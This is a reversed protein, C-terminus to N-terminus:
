REASQHYRIKTKFDKVDGPEIVMLEQDHMAQRRGGDRATSPEVGLVNVSVNPDRWLLLYRWNASLPEVILEGVGRRSVSIPMLTGDAGYRGYYGVTEEEPYQSMTLARPLDGSDDNEDRWGLFPLSGSLQTGNSILPQGINIHHRFMIHTPSTGLNVIHDHITLVPQMVDFELVRTMGLPVEGLPADVIQAHIVIKDAESAFGQPSIVQYSRVPIMSINGHLGYEVGDVESPMGISRLGCTALLGGGFTDKWRSKICSRRASAYHGGMSQWSLPIGGAQAWGIDGGGDLNIDASIGRPNRIELWRNGGAPGHAEVVERISIQRVDIFGASNMAQRGM